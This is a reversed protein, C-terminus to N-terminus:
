LVALALFTAKHVDAFFIFGHTDIINLVKGVGDTIKIIFRGSFKYKFAYSIHARGVYM